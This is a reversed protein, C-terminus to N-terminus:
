ILEGRAALLREQTTGSDSSEESEVSERERLLQRESSDILRSGRCRDYAPFGWMVYRNRMQRQTLERHCRASVIRVVGDAVVLLSM